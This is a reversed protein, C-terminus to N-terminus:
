TTNKACIDRMGLWLKEGYCVGRFFFSIFLIDNDSALRQKRPGALNFQSNLEQSERINRVERM